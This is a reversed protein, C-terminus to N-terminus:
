DRDTNQTYLIRIDEKLDLDPQPHSQQEPQFDDSDGSRRGCSAKKAAATAVPMVCHDATADHEYDDGCVAARYADRM